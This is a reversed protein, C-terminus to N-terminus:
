RVVKGNLVRFNQLEFDGSKHLEVVAFGWNYRNGYPRYDPQLDCLCGVSWCTPFKGRLTKDTHSSTNHLHFCVATDHTKLYLSRAPNVGVSNISVEHGHLITLKGAQILQQCGVYDMGRKRVDMLDGAGCEKIHKALAPANTHAYRPIRMEHNGDKWIHKAKPFADKFTDLIDEVFPIEEDLTPPTSMNSFKSVSPCDMTDGAFVVAAIKYNSACWDLMLRIPETEHFPAHIDGVLLVFGTQQLIYPTKKAHLPPPIYGTIDTEICSSHRRHLKGVAGRHHRVRSRVHEVTGINEGRKEAADVLMKALTRSPIDTHLLCAQKVMETYKDVPM